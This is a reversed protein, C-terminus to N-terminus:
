FFPLNYSSSVHFHVDSSLGEVILVHVPPVVINGDSPKSRKAQPSVPSNGLDITGRRQLRKSPIPTSPADTRNTVPSTPPSMSKRGDAPPSTRSVEGTNDSTPKSLVLLEERGTVMVEPFYNPAVRFRNFQAALSNPKPREGPSMDGEMTASTVRRSSIKRHDEKPPKLNGSERTLTPPNAIKESTIESRSRPGQPNFFIGAPQGDVSQIILGSSPSTGLKKAEKDFYDGVSDSDRLPSPPLRSGAEIAEKLNRSSRDSATRPSIPPRNPKQSSPSSGSFPSFPNIGLGSPSLPSTAIPTFFPDVVPKIVATRLATLVRRPGAPKPLVIVEPVYNSACPTSMVSHILDKVLKFNQLGTFHIVVPHQVPYQTVAFTSKVGKTRYIQPSSKPRHQAALQPRRLNLNFTNEARLQVLRQRLSNIDDDIIIFAPRDELKMKQIQEEAPNIDIVGASDLTSAAPSPRSNDDRNNEASAEQVTDESASLSVHSVDLGWTTLYSTLHHAFSGDSNAHLTVKKGKLTEVFQLLESLCPESALQINMSAYPQRLAAEEASLNPPNTLLEPSGSELPVSFACCRGSSFLKPELESKLTGRIRALLRRFIVSEFHPKTRLLSSKVAVRPNSKVSSKAGPSVFKHCVEFTCRLPGEFDNVSSSARSSSRSGNDSNSQERSSVASEPLISLGIEITDGPHSTDM